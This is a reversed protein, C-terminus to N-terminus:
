QNVADVGDHEQQAEARAKVEFFQFVVVSGDMEKGDEDKALEVKTRAKKGLDKATQSILQRFSASSSTYDQGRVCRWISGDSWKEWPYKSAPHKKKKQVSPWEKLKTAM